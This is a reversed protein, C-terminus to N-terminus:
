SLAIYQPMILRDGLETGLTGHPEAMGVPFFAALFFIAATTRVFGAGRFAAFFASAEFGVFFVASVLFAAGALFVAVFFIAGAFIVAEL